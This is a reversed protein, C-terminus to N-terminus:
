PLPAGLCAAGRGSDWNVTGSIFISVQCIIGSFAEASRSWIPRFIPGPCVLIHRSPLGSWSDRSTMALIGPWTSVASITAEIELSHANVSFDFGLCHCKEALPSLASSVVNRNPGAISASWEEMAPGFRLTTLLARLGSASFHWQRPNSKLTLAWEKSIQPLSKRRILM